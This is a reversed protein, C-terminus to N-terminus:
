WHTDPEHQVSVQQIQIASSALTDIKICVKGDASKIKACSMYAEPMKM